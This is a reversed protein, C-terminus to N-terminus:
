NTLKFTSLIEDYIKDHDGEYNENPFTITWGKDKSNFGIRTFPFLIYEDKSLSVKKNAPVDNFQIKEYKYSNLAEKTGKDIGTKSLDDASYISKTAEIMLGLPWGHNLKEASLGEIDAEKGFVFASENFIKYSWEPPYKVSFGLTSDSYTKWNSMDDLTTSVPSASQTAVPTTETKTFSTKKSYIFGGIALAAIVGVVLYINVNGKQM